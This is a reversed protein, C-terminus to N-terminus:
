ISLLCKWKNQLNCEQWRNLFNPLFNPKTYSAFQFYKKGRSYNTKWNQPLKLICIKCKNIVKFNIVKFFTLVATKQNQMHLYFALHVSFDVVKGPDTLSIRVHPLSYGRPLSLTLHIYPTVAEWLLSEPTSVARSGLEPTLFGLSYNVFQQLNLTSSDSFSFKLSVWDSLFKGGLAQGPEWLGNHLFIRLHKQCPFTFLFWESIIWLM